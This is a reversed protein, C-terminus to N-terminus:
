GQGQRALEFIQCWSDAISKKRSSLRYCWQEAVGKCSALVQDLSLSDNRFVKANRAKWIQWCVLAIFASFEEHPVGMNASLMSPLNLRQWLGHGLRCGRIIHEPLEEAQHCIECISDDVVGKTLVMHCQIRKQLLLGM